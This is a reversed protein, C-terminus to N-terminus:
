DGDLVKRMNSLALARKRQEARSLAVPEEDSYGTAVLSTVTEEAASAVVAYEYRPVPFGAQVVSLIGCMELSGSEFRWDGSPPNAMLDRVKEEPCDSRIAGTVWIGHRGDQARVFAAVTGTQDYHEIAGKMGLTLPAHGARGVTIKGVSVRENESTLIEGLHFWAYNSKSKPALECTGPMGTHCQGWTAIHGYVQGEDTITLPVPHDPEVLHFWSKPPRLPAMGAAAATLAKNLAFSSAIVAHRVGDISAAEVIEMNADEFAPFPTLTAGMIKGTMGTLYEGNFLKEFDIDEESVEEKTEPDLLFVEDIAFDISVGTLIEDDVLRAAEVGDEGTDFVGSGMIAVADDGLDPRAERWITTIKGAVRAGLHGPQTEVQSMLTLPLEREGIRGPMLYRGDSTALGEIALPGQWPTGQEEEAESEEAEAETVEFTSSNSSGATTTTFTIPEIRPVIQVFATGIAEPAAREKETASM